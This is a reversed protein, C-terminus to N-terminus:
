LPDGPPQASVGAAYSGGASDLIHLAHGGGANLSDGWQLAGNEDYVQEVDVGLVRGEIELPINLTQDLYSFSEASIMYETGQATIGFYDANSESDIIAETSTGLRTALTQLISIDRVDFEQGTFVGTKVDIVKGIVSLGNATAHSIMAHAAMVETSPIGDDYVMGAELSGSSNLLHVEDQGGLALLISDTVPDVFESYVYAVVGAIAMGKVSFAAAGALALASSTIAAAVLADGITDIEYLDDGVQIVDPDNTESVQLTIEDVTYSAQVSAGWGIVFKLQGTGTAGLNAVIDSLTSSVADLWQSDNQPTNSDPIYFYPVTM